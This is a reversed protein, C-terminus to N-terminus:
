STRPTRVFMVAVGGRTAQPVMSFHPVVHRTVTRGAITGIAAGFVVDSLNHVDDHLRSTSVYAAFAYAPLAIRWSQHRDLVAATAFTVAAHGSPFSYGSSGNPRPREVAFKLSQVMAETVIQARLLDLGVHTVKADGFTRGLAYAATSAGMLTLTNGVINGAKFLTGDSALRRNVDDDLPHAALALGGGISAVVVSDASPLHKVDGGLDRVLTRLSNPSSADAPAGDEAAARGVAPLGVLLGVMVCALRKVTM